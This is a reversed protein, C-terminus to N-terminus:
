SHVSSDGHGLCGILLECRCGHAARCCCSTLAYVHLLLLEQRIVLGAHASLWVCVCVCLCVCVCVLLLRSRIWVDADRHRHLVTVAHGQLSAHVQRREETHDAAVSRRHSQSHDRHHRHQRREDDVPAHPPLRPPLGRGRGPVPVPVPVPVAVAGSRLPVRRPRTARLLLQTGPIWAAGGRLCCTFLDLILPSTDYHYMLRYIIHKHSRGQDWILISGSSVYWLYLHLLYLVM